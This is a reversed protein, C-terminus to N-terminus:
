EYHRMANAASLNAARRAPFYATVVAIGVILVNYGITALVTPAFFLHNNVLLMGMPNEGADITLSSLGWMALFALATGALSAFLALFATELIFSHQVDRKQMGIARVTGIERTREKITMRLTNIVGVLIIAFLIMGAVLTILNLAFEVQLVASATEYMSQVSVMIGKYKARGMERMQKMVAQSTAERKMLMYEPALAWFLPHASDPLTKVAAPLPLYYARYFEKENILIDGPLPSATDAVGSIIFRREGAAITGATDYRAKWRLTVTDGPTAGLRQATAASIIVGQFSFSKVSDSGPLLRIKQTLLTRSATDSRMGLAVLELSADKCVANAPIAAIGPRLAAHLRDSVAKATKQPEPLTLQIGAIDHPGYGALRRIDGAELFVPMSMFVNAPKFIGVVTLQASTQQNTVTTFRVRLPDGMKVKLYKAKQEALVVPLGKSKDNLDLFSGQIMKFNSQFEKLEKDTLKGSLDVGVLIAMDAVGNGVARGFVGIAEEYRIAEPAAKKIADRIRLDDHFVQMMMNGDRMYTISAHGSTYKVVHNFLVESIGHSFANALILVMAGFAIAVGLLFSRRKQRLLNRLSITVVPNM